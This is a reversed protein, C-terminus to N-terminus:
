TGLFTASFFTSVVPCSCEDGMSTLDHKFAKMHPKLIICVLFRWIDLSCKSFSSSGSILSGVNASDYLFGPFELFVDAETENVLGFGKVTRIMIFQPFSKFLHSYWFMMGTEQSVQIHILFCCNSGQIPIVSQNLIQKNLRYASCIMLFAPSPQTVLQFWCPPLFMLLRLYTSSVVRTASLSSSSFPKKILTLSSLSLAPKFNFVLFVLIRAVPEMLEHCISPSFISTTVSKRKKPELIMPITVAAM